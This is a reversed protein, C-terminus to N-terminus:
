LIKFLNKVYKRISGCTIIHSKALSKIMDSEFCIPIEQWIGNLPKDYNVYCYVQLMGNSFRSKSVLYTQIEIDNENLPSFYYPCEISGNSVNFCYNTDLHSRTQVGRSTHDSLIKADVYWNDDTIVSHSFVDRTDKLKNSDGSMPVHNDGNLIQGTNTKTEV